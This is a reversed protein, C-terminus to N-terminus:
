PNAGKILKLRVLDAESWNISALLFKLLGPGYTKGPHYHLTVQRGDESQWTERAGSTRVCRWKDQRLARKLRDLSLGKLQDWTNKAYQTM